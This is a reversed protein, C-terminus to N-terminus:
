SADREWPSSKIFWIWDRSWARNSSSEGSFSFFVTALTNSEPGCLIPPRALVDTAHPVLDAHHGLIRTRDILSIVATTIRSTHFRTWATLISVRKTFISEWIHACHLELLLFCLRTFTESGYILLKMTRGDIVHENFKLRNHTFQRYVFQM